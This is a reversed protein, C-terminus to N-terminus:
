KLKLLNSKSVPVGFAGNDHSMICLYVFQKFSDNVSDFSRSTSNTDLFLIM